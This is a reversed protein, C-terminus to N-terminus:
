DTHFLTISANSVKAVRYHRAGLRFAKQRDCRPIERPYVYQPDLDLLTLGLRIRGNDLGAFVLRTRGITLARGKVLVLRGDMVVSRIPPYAAEARQRDAKNRAEWDETFARFILAIITLLAVAVFFSAVSSQKRTFAM